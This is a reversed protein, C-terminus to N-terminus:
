KIENEIPQEFAQYLIEDSPKKTFLSVVVTVIISCVMCIVGIMPSCSVGTKLALAFSCDFGNKHYGFFFILSVTLVLSTIVSAWCENKTIKKSIVGLVYPGMFCGALTGWSLGM